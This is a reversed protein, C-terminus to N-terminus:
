DCYQPPVSTLEKIRQVNKGDLDAQQINGTRDSTKETWYLKGAAVDVAVGTVNKVSPAINEVSTEMLRYLTGSPTEIWYMLPHPTARTLVKVESTANFTVQRFIGPVSAQVSNVGYRNGLTLYTQAQGNMDTTTTMPSVSGGGDIVTFTVTSGVVPEANVDQVAVVFPKGLRSGPVSNQNKGSVAIVKNPANGVQVTFTAPPLRVAAAEVSVTGPNKPTFNTKAFGNKDTQIRYPSVYGNNETVKFTVQM